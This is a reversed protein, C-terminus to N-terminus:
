CSRTVMILVGVANPVVMASVAPPNLVETVM